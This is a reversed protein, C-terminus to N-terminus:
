KVARVEMELCKGNPRGSMPFSIEHFGVAALIERLSDQSFMNFHFDGNYDQAGFTVERLDDFPFSGHSFSEIMAKWDPVVARFNGGERLLQFWYPLVRSKLEELPFHELLHASFLEIISEIDFPMDTVDAVVDVGPLERMDVNLYEALPLHGCGMNIRINEGMARLKEQNTVKKRPLPKKSDTRPSGYKIEFLVEQRVFEIREWLRPISDSLTQIQASVDELSKELNASVDEISKELAKNARTLERSAHSFSSIYNLVAPLHVSLAQLQQRNNRNEEELVWIRHNQHRYKSPFSLLKRTAMLSRGPSHPLKNFFSKM